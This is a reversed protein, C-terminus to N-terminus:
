EGGGLRGHAGGPRLANRTSPRPGCRGHVGAELVKQAHNEDPKGRVRQPQYVPWHKTRQIAPGPPAADGLPLILPSSFEPCPDAQGGARSASEEDRIPGEHRKKRLFAAMAVGGMVLGTLVLLVWAYEPAQRGLYAEVFTKPAAGVATAVVFRGFGMRTLGAAYSAADFAMGPVLRTVLVAYTGWRAFWRDASELGVKGVLAEVPGRGLARAIYFCVVAALTQGAVSLAWGWFVGFALGNAFTILFTPIPTALAQLIMLLFSALPAWAGFSLIYDRLGELDGRVLIEVARGVESRFAESFLYALAFVAAAGLMLALQARRVMRRASGPAAGGSIKEGTV